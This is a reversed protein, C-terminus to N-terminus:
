RVSPIRYPLEREHERPPRCLPASIDPVALGTWLGVAFCARSLGLQEASLAWLWVLGNLTLCLKSHCLTVPLQMNGVASAARRLGYVFVM